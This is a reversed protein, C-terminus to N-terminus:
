FCQTETCIQPCLILILRKNRGRREQLCPLITHPNQNLTACLRPVYKKSNMLPAIKFLPPQPHGAKSSHGWLLSLVTCHKGASLQSIELGKEQGRASTRVPGLSPPSFAFATQNDYWTDAALVSVWDKLKRLVIQSPFKRILNKGILRLFKSKLRSHLGPRKKKWNSSLYTEKSDSM